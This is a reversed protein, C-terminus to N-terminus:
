IPLLITFYSATGRVHRSIRWRGASVALGSSEIEAGKLPKGRLVRIAVERDPLAFFRARRNSTQSRGQGMLVRCVPPPNEEFVFMGLSTQEVGAVSLTFTFRSSHKHRM